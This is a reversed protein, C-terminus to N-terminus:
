IPTYTKSVIKSSTHQQPFGGTFTFMLEERKLPKCLVCPLMGYCATPKTISDWFPVFKPFPLPALYPFYYSGIWNKESYFPVEVMQPIKLGRHNLGAKPM